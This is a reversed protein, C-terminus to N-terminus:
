LYDEVKKNWLSAVEFEAKTMIEISEDKLNIPINQQNALETAQELTMEPPLIRASVTKPRGGRRAIGVVGEITFTIRTDCRRCVTDRRTDSNTSRTVYIQNWGCHDKTWGHEKGVGNPWHKVLIYRDMSNGTGVNIYTSQIIECQEGCKAGLRWCKLQELVGWPPPATSLRAQPSM